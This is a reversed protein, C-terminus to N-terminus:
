SHGHFSQAIQSTALGTPPEGASSRPYPKSASLCSQGLKWCICTSRGIERKPTESRSDCQCAAGAESADEASRLLWESCRVRQVYPMKDPALVPRTLRFTSVISAGLTLLQCQREGDQEPTSLGLSDTLGQRQSHGQDIVNRTGMM